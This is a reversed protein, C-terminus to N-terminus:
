TYRGLFQTKREHVVVHQLYRNKTKKGRKNTFLLIADALVECVLVAVLFSEQTTLAIASAYNISTIIIIIYHHYYQLLLLLLLMIVTRNARM